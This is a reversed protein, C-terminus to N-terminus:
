CTGTLTVVQTAPGVAAANNLTAKLQWFTDKQQLATLTTLATDSGTLATKSAYPEGSTLSYHTSGVLMANTITATNWGTGRVSVSAQANGTNSIQLTQDSSEANPALIGYAIAPPVTALGCVALITATSPVTTQQAHAQPIAIASVGLTAIVAVIAIFRLKM